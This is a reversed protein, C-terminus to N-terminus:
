IEIIANLRGYNSDWDLFDALKLSAASADALVNQATTTVYQHLAPQAEQHDVVTVRLGRFYHM